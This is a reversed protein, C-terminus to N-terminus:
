NVNVARGSAHAQHYLYQSILYHLNGALERLAIQHVTLIPASLSKVSQLMQLSSFLLKDYRCYVIQFVSEYPVCFYTYKLLLAACQSLSSTNIQLVFNLSISEVM